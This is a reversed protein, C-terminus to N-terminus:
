VEEYLGKDIAVLIKHGPKIEIRTGLAKDYLDHRVAWIRVKVTSRDEYGPM